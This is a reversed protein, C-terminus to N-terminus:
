VQVSIDANAFVDLNLEYRNDDLTTPDEDLSSYHVYVSKINM